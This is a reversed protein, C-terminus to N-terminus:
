FKARGDERGGDEVGVWRLLSQHLLVRNHRTKETPAASPGLGHPTQPPQKLLPAGETDGGMRVKVIHPGEEVHPTCLASPLKEERELVM